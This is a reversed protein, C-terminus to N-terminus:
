YPYKGFTRDREASDVRADVRGNCFKSLDLNSTNSSTLYELEM